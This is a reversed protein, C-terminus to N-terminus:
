ECKNQVQKELMEMDCEEHFCSWTHLEATKNCKKCSYVNTKGGRAREELKWEHFRATLVEEYDELLPAEEIIQKKPLLFFFLVIAMLAGIIILGEM